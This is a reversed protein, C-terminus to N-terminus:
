KGIERPTVKSHNEEIMNGVGEASNKCIMEGTRADTKGGTREGNKEFLKKSGEQQNKHIGGETKAGSRFINHSSHSRDM